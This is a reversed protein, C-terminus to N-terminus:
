RQVSSQTCYHACSKDTDCPHFCILHWQFCLITSVKVWWKQAFLCPSVMPYLNGRMYSVSYMVEGLKWKLEYGRRCHSLVKMFTLWGRRYATSHATCCCNRYCCPLIFIIWQIGQNPVDMIMYPSCMSIHLAKQPEKGNQLTPIKMGYYWM